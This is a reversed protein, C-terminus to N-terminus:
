RTSPTPSSKQGCVKSGDITSRQTVTESRSAKRAVRRSAVVSPIRAPPDAPSATWAASSIARSIVSGSASMATIRGSPPREYRLLTKL